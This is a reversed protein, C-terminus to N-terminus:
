YFSTEEPNYQLLFSSLYVHGTKAWLMNADYNIDNPWVLWGIDLNNRWIMVKKISYMNSMDIVQFDGSWSYKAQLM